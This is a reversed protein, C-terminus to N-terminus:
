SRTAIFWARAGAPLGEVTTKQDQPNRSDCDAKLAMSVDKFGCSRLMGMRCEAGFIWWSTQDGWFAGEIFEARNSPESLIHTEMLLTTAPRMISALKEVLLLPEKM